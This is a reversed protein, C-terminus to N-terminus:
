RREGELVKIREELELFYLYLEELKEITKLTMVTMDIHGKAHIEQASPKGPLHRNEDLYSRIADM